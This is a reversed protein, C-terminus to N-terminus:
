ADDRALKWRDIVHRALPATTQTTQLAEELAKVRAQAADLADLIATLDTAYVERTNSGECVYNANIGMARLRAKVQEIDTM